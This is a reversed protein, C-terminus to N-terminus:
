LCGLKLCDVLIDLPHPAEHSLGSQGGPGSAPHDSESSAASSSNRCAKTFEPRCPEASKDRGGPGGTEHRDGHRRRRIRDQPIHMGESTMTQSRNEAPRSESPIQPACPPDRTSLKQSRCVMDRGPNAERFRVSRCGDLKGSVCSSYVLAALRSPRLRFM